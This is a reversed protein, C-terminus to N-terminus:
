LKFSHEEFSDGHKDVNSSFHMVVHLFSFLSLVRVYETMVSMFKESQWFLASVRDRNKRKKSCGKMILNQKKLSVFCLQALCQSPTSSKRNAPPLSSSRQGSPSSFRKPRHQDRGKEPSRNAVLSPEVFGVTQRRTSPELSFFLFTRRNIM